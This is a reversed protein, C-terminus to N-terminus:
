KLINMLTYYNILFKVVTMVSGHIAESDESVQAESDIDQITGVFEPVQGESNAESNDVPKYYVEGPAAEPAPKYYVEGPEAENTTEINSEPVHYITTPATEYIKPAKEPVYVPVPASDPVTEPVYIPIPEEEQHVPAHDFMSTSADFMDLMSPKAETCSLTM